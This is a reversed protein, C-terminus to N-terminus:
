ITGLIIIDYDYSTTNTITIVDATTAVVSFGDKPSELLLFGGPGLKATPTTGGLPVTMFDGSVTLVQGAVTAKSKIFLLKIKTFVLQDGYKDIISGAGSPLDLDFSENTAALTRTDSFFANVQNDGIGNTYATPTNTYNIAELLTSLDSAKTYSAVLGFSATGAFSGM